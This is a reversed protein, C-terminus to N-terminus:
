QVFLTVSDLRVDVNINPAYASIEVKHTQATIPPNFEQYIRTWPQALGYYVQAGNYRLTVNGAQNWTTIFCYAYAEIAVITVQQSFSVEAYALVNGTTRRTALAAGTIGSKLVMGSLQSDSYAIAGTLTLSAPYAFHTPSTFQNSPFDGTQTGFTFVINTTDGCDYIQCANSPDAAGIGLIRTTLDDGLLRAMNALWAAKNADNAFADSLVQAADEATTINQRLLQCYIAKAIEDQTVQDNYDNIV